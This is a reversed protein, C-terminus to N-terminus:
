STGPSRHISPLTRFPFHLGNTPKCTGECPRTSILDAARGPSWILEREAVVITKRGDGPGPSGNVVKQERCLGWEGQVGKELCPVSDQSQGLALSVVGTKGRLALASSGEDGVDPSM